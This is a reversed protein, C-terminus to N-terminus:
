EETSWDFFPRVEIVGDRAMPHDAAVRLAEEISDCELIDFGAIAEHSEAFPGDSILTGSKRIRVTKAQNAPALRDGFFRAGSADNTAVWEEINDPGELHDTIEETGVLMLYKMVTEMGARGM